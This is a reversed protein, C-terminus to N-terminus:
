NETTLASMVHYIGFDYLGAFCRLREQPRECAPPSTKIAVAAYAKDCLVAVPPKIHATEVHSGTEDGEAQEDQRCRQLCEPAAVIKTSKFRKVQEKGGFLILLEVGQEGIRVGFEKREVLLQEGLEQSNPSFSIAEGRLGDCLVLFVNKLVSM